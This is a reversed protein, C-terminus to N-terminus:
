MSQVAAANRLVLSKMNDPGRYSLIKPSLTSAEVLLKKMWPGVRKLGQLATGGERLM